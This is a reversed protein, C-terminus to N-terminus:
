NSKKKIGKNWINKLMKKKISEFENQTITGNDALKKFREIEASNYLIKNEKTKDKQLAVILLGILGLIFGCWFGTWYSYGKNDNISGSILGFVLGIFLYSFFIIWM